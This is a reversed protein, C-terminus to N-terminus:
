LIATLEAGRKEASLIFYYFFKVRDMPDVTVIIWGDRGRAM